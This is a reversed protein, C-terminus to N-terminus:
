KVGVLVGTMVAPAERSGGGSLDGVLVPIAIKSMGLWEQSPRASRNRRWSAVSIPERSMPRPDAELGLREPLASQEPSAGWASSPDEIKSRLLLDSGLDTPSDRLSGLTLSVITVVALVVTVAFSSFADSARALILPRPFLM